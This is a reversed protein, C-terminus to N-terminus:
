VHARGIEYGTVTGNGVSPAWVFTLSNRGGDLLVPTGPPAVELAVTQTVSTARAVTWNSGVTGTITFTPSISGPPTGAMTGTLTTLICLNLSTGAAGSSAAAPLAPPAALTGTTTGSGPPTTTCAGAPKPWLTVAISSALPGTATGIGLSYGLPSTGQNAITVQAVKSLAGTQYQHALGAIGTVSLQTTAASSSATISAVTNWVAFSLGTSSLALFLSLGIAIAAKHSFSMRGHHRTGHGGVRRRSMM